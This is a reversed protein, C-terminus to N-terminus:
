LATALQARPNRCGNPFNALACVAITAVGAVICFAGIAANIPNNHEPRERRLDALQTTHEQLLDCLGEIGSESATAVTQTVIRAATDADRKSFDTDIIQDRAEAEFLALERRIDLARGRFEQRVQAIAEPVDANLLELCTENQRDAAARARDNAFGLAEAREAERYRLDAVLAYEFSQVARGALGKVIPGAVEEVAPLLVSNGCEIAERCRQERSLIGM